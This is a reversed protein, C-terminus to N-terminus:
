QMSRRHPLLIQCCAEQHNGESSLGNQGDPEHVENTCKCLGEEARLGSIDIGKEALNMLSPTVGVEEMIKDVIQRDYYAIDLKEAIKKGIASGGCGYECGLSIVLHEKLQGM